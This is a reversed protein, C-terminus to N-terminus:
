QADIIQHAMEVLEDQSINSDEVLFSYYVGDQEWDLFKYSVIEVEESGFGFGYKGEAEDKKDQETMKYDEPVFKQKNSCYYIDVDNYKDVIVQEKSREGLMGKEISLSLEEGNKTYDIDLSNKEVISEGRDDKGKKETKYANEFVYGNEFKEVLNVTFGFDKGVQNESPLTTYFPKNSTSSYISVMKGGALATTGILFTAVLTVIVKKKFYIKKYKNANMSDGGKDPLNNLTLSLKNKFSEPTDSFVNKWKYNSM